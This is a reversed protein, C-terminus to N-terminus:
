KGFIRNLKYKRLLKEINLYELSSYSMFHEYSFLFIYSNESIIVFREGDFMNRRHLFDSNYGFKKLINIALNCNNKNVIIYKGDLIM